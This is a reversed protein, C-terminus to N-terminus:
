APAETRGPEALPFLAQLRGGEGTPGITLTGGLEAVRERMAITGVGPAWVRDTAGDDQVEVYANEDVAGLRV